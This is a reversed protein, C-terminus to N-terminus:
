SKDSNYDRTQHATKPRCHIYYHTSTIAYVLATDNQSLTYHM